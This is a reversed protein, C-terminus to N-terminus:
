LLGRNHLAKDDLCLCYTVFTTERQLFSVSVHLHVPARHVPVWEDSSDWGGEREREGHSPIRLNLSVSSFQVSLYLAINKWWIKFSLCINHRETQKELCCLRELILDERLPIFNGMHLMKEGIFQSRNLHFALIFHYLQKGKFSGMIWLM